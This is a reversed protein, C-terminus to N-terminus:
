KWYGGKVHEIFEDYTRIYDSEDYYESAVVCLVAGETIFEMTRWIGEKIILGKSPDDLLVSEIEWGNDININIEGHPCFLLQKLRKHAHYGRIEGQPVEYIYYLRKIEFEVDRNAEIFSLLGKGQQEIKNINVIQYDM